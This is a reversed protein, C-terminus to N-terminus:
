EKLRLWKLFGYASKGALKAVERRGLGHLIGMLWLRKKEKKCGCRGVEESHAMAKREGHPRDGALGPFM